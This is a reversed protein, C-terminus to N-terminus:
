QFIYPLYFKLIFKSYFNIFSTDIYTVDYTRDVHDATDRNYARHINLSRNLKYHNDDIKTFVNMEQWYPRHRIFFYQSNGAINGNGTSLVIESTLFSLYDEKINPFEIEYDMWLEAVDENYNLKSNMLSYNTEILQINREFYEPKILTYYDNNIRVLLENRKDLEDQIDKVDEWTKEIKRRINVPSKYM